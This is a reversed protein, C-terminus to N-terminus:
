DISYAFSKRQKLFFGQQALSGGDGGAGSLIVRGFCKTQM